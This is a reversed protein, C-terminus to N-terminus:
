GSEHLHIVDSDSLKREVSSMFEDAKGGCGSDNCFPQELEGNDSSALM